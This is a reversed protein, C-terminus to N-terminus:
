CKKNQRKYVNENPVVALNNVQAQTKARAKKREARSMAVRVGLYVFCNINNRYLLHM